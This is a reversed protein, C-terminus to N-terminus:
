RLILLFITCQFVLLFEPLSSFVRCFQIISKIGHLWWTQNEHRDFDLTKCFSGNCTFKGPFQGPMWSMMYKDSCHSYPQPTFNGKGSSYSSELTRMKVNEHINDDQKKHPNFGLSVLLLNDTINVFLNCKFTNVIIM